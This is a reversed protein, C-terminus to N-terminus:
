EIDKATPETIWWGTKEEVIPQSLLYFRLKIRQVYKVCKGLGNIM